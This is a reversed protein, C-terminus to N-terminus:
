PPLILHRLQDQLLNVIHFCGERMLMCSLYKPDTQRAAVELRVGWYEDAMMEPLRSPDIWRAV